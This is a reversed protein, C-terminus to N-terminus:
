PLRGVEFPFPIPRLIRHSRPPFFASLFFFFINFFFFNKPPLPPYYSLPRGSNPGNVAIKMFLLLACRPFGNLFDYPIFCHRSGKILCPFNLNQTPTPPHPEQFQRGVSYHLLPSELLLTKSPPRILVAQFRSLLYRPLCVLSFSRLM